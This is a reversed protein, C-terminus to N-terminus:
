AGGELLEALLRRGQELLLGRTRAEDPAQRRPDAPGERRDLDGEIRLDAFRRGLDERARALLPHDAGSELALLLRALIGPPNDSKALEALELHPRTEVQVREIQGEFRAGPESRRLEQFGSFDRAALGRHLRTRGTLRMRCSLLRLDGAEPGVAQLREELRQLIAADAAEESAAGEMPVEVEEYRVSSLGARRLVPQGPGAWEAIWAGHWGSEGPDLAQPSGPYLGALGAAASEFQKTAHVHGLLWFQGAERPLDASRCPAYVSQPQDMDAHLLGLVPCGPPGQRPYGMLPDASHQAKPFSWGDVRLLVKGDRVLGASEWRGGRGLFHVREHSFQDFFRPLLGADHNGASLFCEIGADALRRLHKEVPGFAEFYRNQADILDGAVALADVKERLALEAIREWAGRASHTGGAGGLRSSVRGLHVDATCLVKM